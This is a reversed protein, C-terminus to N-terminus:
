LRLYLRQLIALCLQTGAHKLEHLAVVKVVKDNFTARACDSPGRACNPGRQTARCDTGLEKKLKGILGM